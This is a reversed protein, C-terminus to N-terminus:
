EDDPDLETVTTDDPHAENWTHEVTAARGMAGQARRQLDRVYQLVEERSEAIWYGRNRGTSRALIPVHYRAMVRTILDRAKWNGEIDDLDLKQGLEESTIPHDSSAARVLELARALLEDSFNSAAPM